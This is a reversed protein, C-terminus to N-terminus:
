NYGDMWGDTMLRKSELYQISVYLHRLQCRFVNGLEYIWSVPSYNIEINDHLFLCM